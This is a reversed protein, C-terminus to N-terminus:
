LAWLFSVMELHFTSLNGQWSGKSGKMGSAQILCFVAALQPVHEGNSLDESNVNKAFTLITGSRWYAPLDIQELTGPFLLRPIFFVPPKVAWLFGLKGPRLPYKETLKKALISLYELWSLKKRKQLATLLQGQACTTMAQIFTNPDFKM